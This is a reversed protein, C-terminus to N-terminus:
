ESSALLFRITFMDSFLRIIKVDLMVTRVLAAAFFGVFGVM